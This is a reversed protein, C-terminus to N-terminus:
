PKAIWDGARHLELHANLFVLLRSRIIARAQDAEPTTLSKQHHIGATPNRLEQLGPLRTGYKKWNPEGCLLTQLLQGYEQMLADCERRASFQDIHGDIWTVAEQRVREEKQVPTEAAPSRRLTTSM